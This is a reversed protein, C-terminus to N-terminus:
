DSEDAFPDGDSSYDSVIEPAVYGEVEVRVILNGRTAKNLTDDVRPEQM